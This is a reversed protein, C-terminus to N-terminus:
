SKGRAIRICARLHQAVKWFRSNQTEAMARRETELTTTLEQIQRRLDAVQPGTELRAITEKMAAMERRMRNRESAMERLQAAALDRDSLNRDTNPESDESCIANEVPDMKLGGDLDFTAVAYPTVLVRSNGSQALNALRRVLQPMRASCVTALGGVAELQARKVAFFEDSITDVSRVVRLDRLLDNQSFHIGAFADVTKSASHLIRGARDLAIGTVLGCDKRMGQSALEEFFVHNLTELPRNIFVFLDEPMEDLSRLTHPPASSDLLSVGSGLLEYVRTNRRDVNAALAAQQFAGDESRVLVAIQWDPRSEHLIRFSG